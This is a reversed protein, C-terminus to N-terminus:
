HGQIGELLKGNERFLDAYYKKATIYKMGGGGERGEEAGDGRKLTLFAVSINLIRFMM